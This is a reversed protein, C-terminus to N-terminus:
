QPDKAGAPIVRSSGDALLLTQSGDAMRIRLLVAQPSNNTTVLYLTTELGEFPAADAPDLYKAAVLNSLGVSVPIPKSNARLDHTLARAAKIINVANQPTMQPATATVANTYIVAILIAVGVIAGLVLLM